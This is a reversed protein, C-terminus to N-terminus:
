ENEDEVDQALKLMIEEFQNPRNWLIENQANVKRLLYAELESREMCRLRRLAKNRKALAEKLTIDLEEAVKKMSWGELYFMRILFEEAPTLPLYSKRM